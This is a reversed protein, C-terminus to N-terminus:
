QPFCILTFLEEEEWGIPFIFSARGVESRMQPRLLSDAGHGPGREQEHKEGVACTRRTKRHVLDGVLGRDAGSSLDNHLKFTIGAGTGM